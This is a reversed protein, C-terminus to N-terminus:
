KLLRGCCSEVECPRHPDNTSVKTIIWRARLDVKLGKSDPYENWRARVLLQCQVVIVAARWRVLRKCGLARADIWEMMLGM